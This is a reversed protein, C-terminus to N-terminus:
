TPTYFINNSIIHINKKNDKLFQTVDIIISVVSSNMSIVYIGKIQLSIFTRCILLFMFM